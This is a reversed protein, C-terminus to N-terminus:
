CVRRDPFVRRLKGELEAELHGIIDKLKVACSEIAAQREVDAPSRAVSEYYYLSSRISQMVDKKQLM